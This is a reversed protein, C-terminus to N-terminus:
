TGFKISGRLIAPSGGGSASPKVAGVYQAVGNASMAVRGGGIAGAGSVLNFDGSSDDALPDSPETIDYSTFDLGGAPFYQANCDYFANNGIICTGAGTLYIPYDNTLNFKTIINSVMVALYSSSADIGTVGGSDGGAITNKYAIGKFALALAATNNTSAIVCNIAATANRIGHYNNNIIACEIAVGEAGFWIGETANDHVHCRYARLYSLNYIGRAGNGYIECDALAWYAGNSNTIPTSTYSHIKAGRIYLFNSSGTFASASSSQGDMEFGVVTEGLLDATISGGNDWAQITIPTGAGGVASALSVSGTQAATNAVFIIDGGSAGGTTLAYNLTAWPNGSSGDGTSDSGNAKDVYYSAM